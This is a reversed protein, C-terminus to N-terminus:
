LYSTPPEIGGHGLSIIINTLVVLNTLFFYSILSWVILSLPGFFIVLNIVVLFAIFSWVLYSWMKQRTIFFWFNAVWVAMQDNIHSNQDKKTM